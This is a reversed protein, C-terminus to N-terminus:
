RLCLVITGSILQTKVIWRSLLSDLSLGANDLWDRERAKLVAKMGREERQRIGKIDFTQTGTSITLRM